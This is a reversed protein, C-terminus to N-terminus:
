IKHFYEVFEDSSIESQLLIEKILGPGLVESRHVPIVTIKGQSNELVHHSGRVRVVRFGKSVLFAIMEKGTIRPLRSSM